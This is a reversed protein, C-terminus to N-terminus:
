RKDLKKELALFAKMGPDLDDTADREHKPLLEPPVMVKAAILRKRLANKEERYDEMEEQYIDWVCHACGSMCCNDPAEPKEPILIRQGDIEVFARAQSTIPQPIDETSEQGFPIIVRQREEHKEPLVVKGPSVTDIETTTPSQALQDVMSTWWGAYSPIRDTVYYRRQHAISYPLRRLIHSM